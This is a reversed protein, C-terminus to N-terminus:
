KFEKPPLLYSEVDGQRIEAPNGLATDVRVIRGEVTRLTVMTSQAEDIFAIAHTGSPYNSDTFASNSVAYVAYVASASIGIWSDIDERRIFHGEPGLFPLVEVTEGEVEGVKCKPPGGLGDEFTCEAQTYQVVSRLANMDGDLVIRIVRDLEDMGTRAPGLPKSEMPALATITPTDAGRSAEQTDTNKQLSDCATLSVVILILISLLLLPLCRTKM